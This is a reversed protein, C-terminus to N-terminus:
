DVEQGVAFGVKEVPRYVERANPPIFSALQDHSRSLLEVLWAQAFDTNGPLFPIAGIGYRNLAEFLPSKHYGVSEDASLPFLAAGCVVPRIEQHGFESGDIVIADRYRHLAGIASQPPSPM